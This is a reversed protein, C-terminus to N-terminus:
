DQNQHSLNQNQNKNGDKYGGPNCETKPLSVGSANEDSMPYINANTCVPIIEENNVKFVGDLIIKSNNGPTGFM